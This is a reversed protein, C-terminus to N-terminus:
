GQTEHHKMGDDCWVLCLPAVEAGPSGLTAETMCNTLVNSLGM